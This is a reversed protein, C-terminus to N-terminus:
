YRVLRQRPVRQGFLSKLYMMAEPANRVYRQQGLQKRVRRHYPRVMAEQAPAARDDM